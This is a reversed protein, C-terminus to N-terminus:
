IVEAESCSMESSNPKCFYDVFSLVTLNSHLVIDANQCSCLPSTIHIRKCHKKLTQFCGGSRTNMENCLGSIRSFQLHKGSCYWSHM